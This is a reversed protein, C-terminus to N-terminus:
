KRLSVRCPYGDAPHAGGGGKETPYVRNGDIERIRTTPHLEDWEDYAPRVDFESITMVLAVRLEMLALSQGICSRPGLQFPRWAGEVPHLDDQSGVLWRDPIFKEPEKWYKPNRHIAPNLTFVNCGETPYHRGDEDIIDVGPRGVRMSSSPPHLRLTEKIVAMTYPLENLCQPRQLVSDRLQSASQDKGFIQDHESRVRSLIELHTALLHYCFVLTSSTTDHGAFLFLCLNATVTDKFAQDVADVNEAQTEHQYGQLALSLVSKSAKGSGAKIESFRKDVEAHLYRNM